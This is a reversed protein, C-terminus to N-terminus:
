VRHMLGSRGASSSLFPELLRLAMPMDSLSFPNSGPTTYESYEVELVDVKERRTDREPTAAPDIGEAIHNAILVQAQQLPTPIENVLVAKGSRYYVDSRPWSLSQTELSVPEGNFDHTELFDMASLLMGETVAAATTSGRATLFAQADVESIYSDANAVIAGTEVILPM